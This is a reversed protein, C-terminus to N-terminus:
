DGTKLAKSKWRIKNRDFWDIVSKNNQERSDVLIVMHSLLEKYKKDTYYQKM